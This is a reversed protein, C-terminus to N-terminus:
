RDILQEDGQEVDDLNLELYMEGHRFDLKEARILCDDNDLLFYSLARDKDLIHKLINTFDSFSNGNWIYPGLEKVERQLESASM